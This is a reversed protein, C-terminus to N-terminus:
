YNRPKKANDPQIVIAGTFHTKPSNESKPKLDSKEKISNERELRLDSKEKIDDWLHEWNRTNWVYHRQYLPIRYRKSSSFLTNISPETAKMELNEANMKQQHLM